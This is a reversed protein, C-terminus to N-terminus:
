KLVIVTWEEGIKNKVREPFLAKVVASSVLGAGLSLGFKQGFNLKTKKDILYFTVITGVAITLSSLTMLYPRSKHFKRFGTIDKVYIFRTDMAGMASLGTSPASLEIISDGISMVIGTKVEKQGIYGKYTFKILDGHKVLIEKKTTTNTFLLGRQAFVPLAFLVVLVIILSNKMYM